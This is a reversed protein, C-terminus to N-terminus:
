QLAEWDKEAVSKLPDTYTIVSNQLYKLISNPDEKYPSVKAVPKGGHTIILPKKDQEVKRLYELLQSKFQTKSITQMVITM